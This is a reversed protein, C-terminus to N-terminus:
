RRGTLRGAATMCPKSPNNRVVAVASGCGDHPNFSLHYPLCCGNSGDSRETAIDASQWGIQGWGRLPSLGVSSRQHSAVTLAESDAGYCLRDLNHLLDNPGWGWRRNKSRVCDLNYHSGM